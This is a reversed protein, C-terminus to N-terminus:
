PCAARFADFTRDKILADLGDARAAPCIRPADNAAGFEVGLVVKSAAQFDAYADCEGGAVCGEALAWEFDGAVAEAITTAGGLGAGLGLAHAEGALWAAYDVDDASTLALGTDVGDASVNALDIGDCGKQAAVALRAAMLARVTADRTDLWREGPYGDLANGVAAAPFSAADARWSEDTGVSVYCIVHRGAGRLEAITSAPADFLDVDYLAVDFSTDITGTLQVQWSTDLAPRFVPPATTVLTGSSGGCAAALLSMAALAMVRARVEM